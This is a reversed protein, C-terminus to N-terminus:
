CNKNCQLWELYWIDHQISQGKDKNYPNADADKGDRWANQADTRIDRVWRPSAPIYKPLYGLIEMLEAQTFSKTETGEIQILKM